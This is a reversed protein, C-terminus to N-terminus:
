KFRVDPDFYWSVCSWFSLFSINFGKDKFEPYCWSALLLHRKGELWYRVFGISDEEFKRRLRFSSWAAKWQPLFGLAFPSKQRASVSSSWRVSISGSFLSQFLSRSSGLRHLSICRNTLLSILIPHLPPATVLFYPVHLPFLSCPPSIPNRNNIFQLPRSSYLNEGRRPAFRPNM